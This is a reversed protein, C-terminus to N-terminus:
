KIKKVTSRDVLEYDLLIPDTDANEEIMKILKRIARRGEEGKKQRITTINLSLSDPLTIDDFGIVSIDEPVKIGEDELADMVGISMMNTAVFIASFDEDQELLDLTKQYAVKRDFKGNVILNQNYSVDFDEHAEKYGVLRQKSEQAKTLGNMLAIDQHGQQILHEVAKYAGKKHDYSIYTANDGFVPVDLSIIPIESKEIDDLYPDDNYMGFIIAGDVSREKCKEVYSVDSVERNSFLLIDYGHERSIDMIGVILEIITPHNLDSHELLLFLGITDTKKRALSRAIANPRYNLEQAAALIKKATEDNVKSSKGNLAYSATSVAVGAKKAVDKITAM